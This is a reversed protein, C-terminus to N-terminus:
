PTDEVLGTWTAIPRGGGNVAAVVPGQAVKGSLAPPEADTQRCPAESAPVRRALATNEGFAEGGIEDLGVGPARRPEVPERMRDSEHEAAPGSFPECFAQGYRHAGVRQQTKQAPTCRWCRGIDTHDADVIESPQLPLAISRDDAIELAAARDVQQRIPFAAGHRIPERSMGRDFNNAAVTAASVTLPSRLARRLRQHDGVSPMQKSVDARREQLAYLPM